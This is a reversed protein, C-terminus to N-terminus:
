EEVTGLLEALASLDSKHVDGIRGGKLNPKEAEVLGTEQREEHEEVEVLLHEPVSPFNYPILLPATLPCRNTGVHAIARIIMSIVQPLVVDPIRYTVTHRCTIPMCIFQCDGREEVNLDEVKFEEM